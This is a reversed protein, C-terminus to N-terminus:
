GKRDRLFNELPVGSACLPCDAPEWISSDLSALTMLPVGRGNAFSEASRGLTLLAGIACVRAKSSELAEVTSQVASGANIVDDVVAVRRDRVARQASLSLQYHSAIRETYFFEIELDEAIMEAVFAGGIMPGCVADVRIASFRESLLNAVKRIVRPRVFLEDLDIWLEGHHGSELAFHGRRMKFLVLLEHDMLERQVAIWRCNRASHDKKGVDDPM